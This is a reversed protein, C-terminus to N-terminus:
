VKYKQAGFDSCLAFWPVWAMPKPVKAKLVKEPDYGNKKLRVRMRKQSAIIGVGALTGTFGSMSLLKGYIDSLHGTVNATLGTLLVVWMFAMTFFVANRPAQNKSLHSLFKPALGETSLGYMARVTGYFGTNGCSFAAVMVVAAFIYFFPTLGYDRSVLNRPHLGHVRGKGM